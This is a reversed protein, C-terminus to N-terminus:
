YKKSLREYEKVGEDTISYYVREKRRTGEMSVKDAVILGDVEMRYIVPYITGRQFTVLDGFINSIEQMLDYGYRVGENLMQLTLVM